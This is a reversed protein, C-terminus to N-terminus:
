NEENASTEHSVKAAGKIIRLPQGLPFHEDSQGKNFVVVARAWLPTDHNHRRIIIRHAVYTRLQPTEYVDGPALDEANKFRNGFKM